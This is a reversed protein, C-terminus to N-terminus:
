SEQTGLTVEMVTNANDCLPPENCQTFVNCTVCLAPTHSFFHRKAIGVLGSGWELLALTNQQKAVKRPM